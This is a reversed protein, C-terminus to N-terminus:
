RFKNLPQQVGKCLTPPPTAQALLRNFGYAIAIDELVDCAHLLDTRNPTVSVELSKGDETVRGSLMM